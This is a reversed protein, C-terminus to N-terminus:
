KKIVDFVENPIEFQEYNYSTLLREFWARKEAAIPRRGGLSRTSFSVVIWKAQIRALLFPTIDWQITELADVVKFIFCVDVKPLKQEIQTLDLKFAKGDICFM